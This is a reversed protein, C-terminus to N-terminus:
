SVRDRDLGFVVSLDGAMRRLHARHEASKLEADRMRRQEQELFESTKIQLRIELILLGLAFGGRPHDMIKDITAISATADFVTRAEWESLGWEAAASKVGGVGPWTRRAYLAWANKTSLRASSKVRFDSGVTM